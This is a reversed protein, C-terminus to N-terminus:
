FRLLFIIFPPTLISLIRNSLPRNRIFDYPFYSGFIKNKADSFSTLYLCSVFHFLRKSPSQEVIVPFSLFVLFPAQNNSVVPESSSRRTLISQPPLKLRDLPPILCPNSHSLPNSSYVM